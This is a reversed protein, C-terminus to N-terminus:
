KKLCQIKAKGLDFFTTHWWTYHNTCKNSPTNQMVGYTPCMIIEAIGHLHRLSPLKSMSRADKLTCFSSLGSAKWLDGRYRKEPHLEAYTKLDEATMVNDEHILRFLSEGNCAIVVDEPPTDEPLQKAWSVKYRDMYESLTTSTYM